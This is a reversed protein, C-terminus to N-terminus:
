QHGREGLGPVDIQEREVPAVVDARGGGPEVLEHAGLHEGTARGSRGVDHGVRHATEHRAREDLPEGHGPGVHVVGSALMTPAPAEDHEACRIAARVGNRQRQDPLVQEDLHQRGHVSRVSTPLDRRDHRRERAHVLHQRRRAQLDVVIVAEQVVRLRPALDVVRHVGREELAGAPEVGREVGAPVVAPEDVDGPVAMERGRPDGDRAPREGESAVVPAIAADGVLRTEEGAVVVEAPRLVAVQHGVGRHEGGKGVQQGTALGCTEVVLRGGTAAAGDGDGDSRVHGGVLDIGIWDPREHAAPAVSRRGGVKSVEHRLRCREVETRGVLGCVRPRQCLQAHAHRVAAELLGVMRHHDPVVLADRGFPGLREEVALQAPRQVTVAIQAVVGLGDAVGEVDVIGAALRRAADHETQALEALQAARLEHAGHVAGRDLPGKAGGLASESDAGTRRHPHRGHEHARRPLVAQRDVGRHGREHLAHRPRRAFQRVEIRRDGHLEVLELDDLEVLTPRGFRHQRRPPDACEDRALYEVREVKTQGVREVDLAAPSGAGRQGARRTCGPGADHDLVAQRRAWRAIVFAGADRGAAGVPQRDGHDHERLELEGPESPARLDVPQGDVVVLHLHAADDVGRGGPRVGHGLAEGQELQQERVLLLEDDVVAVAEVKEHVLVRRRNGPLQHAAAQGTM